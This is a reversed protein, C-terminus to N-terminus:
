VLLLPGIDVAITSTVQERGCVSRVAMTADNGELQHAIERLAAACPLFMHERRAELWRQWPQRAAAGHAAHFHKREVGGRGGGAPRCQREGAVVASKGGNQDGITGASACPVVGIKDDVVAGTPHVLLIKSNRAAARRQKARQKAIHSGRVIM